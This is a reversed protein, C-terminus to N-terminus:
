SSFLHELGLERIKSVIESTRSLGLKGLLTRIQSKVTVPEVFRKQAIERIKMGDLFCGILEREAKTLSSLHQIFYLLSRESHSLRRYENMILDHVRRDLITEGNIVASLHSSIEERSCGKVLFDKAGSAMATIVIEDDDHSTLFVIKAQPDKEIIARAADIGANSTEMEIDMLVVSFSGPSYSRSADKGSSCECTVAFGDISNVTETIYERIIENDEAVMVSNVSTKEKNM